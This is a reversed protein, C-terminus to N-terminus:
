KSLYKGNVWQSASDKLHNVIEEPEKKEMSNSV